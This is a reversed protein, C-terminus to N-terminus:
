GSFTAVPPPVLLLSKTIDALRLRSAASGGEERQGGQTGVIREEQGRAESREERREGRGVGEERGGRERRRRETLARPDDPPDSDRGQRSCDCLFLCCGSFSLFPLLRISAKRM